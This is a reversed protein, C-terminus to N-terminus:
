LEWYNCPGKICGGVEAGMECIDSISTLSSKGGGQGLHITHPVLQFHLWSAM